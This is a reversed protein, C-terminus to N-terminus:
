RAEYAESCAALGRLDKHTKCWRYERFEPLTLGADVVRLFGLRSVVELDVPLLKGRVLAECAFLAGKAVIVQSPCAVEPHFDYEREVAAVSAKKASSDFGNPNFTPVTSSMAPNAGNRSTIKAAAFGAGVVVIAFLLYLAIKVLDAYERHSRIATM